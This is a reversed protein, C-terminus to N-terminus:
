ISEIEEESMLATALLTRWPLGVITTVPSAILKTDLM